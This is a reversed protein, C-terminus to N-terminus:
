KAIEFAMKVATKAKVPKGDEFKPAFRWASVAEVAATEFARGGSSRTVKPDRVMGMEDVTFHVEVWGDKRRLALNMPYKAPKRFLPTQEQNDDWPTMSGIAICHKTAKDREGEHEYLEVLRSHSSLSYPHTFDLVDYGKIVELYLPEAKSYKKQGHYARALLYTAELRDVANPPLSNIFYEHADELGSFLSRDYFETHSLRKFAGMQTVALIDPKGSDEAIELASKYSERALRNDQTVDGVVMLPEILETATGEFHTRYIALSNKAVETAQTKREVYKKSSDDRLAKAFNLGLNAYNLSDKGFKAEGLQYAEEAFKRADSLNGIELAHKYSDYVQSFEGAMAVPLFSNLVVLLPLIKWTSQM